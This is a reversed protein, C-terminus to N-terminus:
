AKRTLRLQRWLKYKNWSSLLLFWLQAAHHAVRRRSKYWIFLDATRCGLRTKMLYHARGLCLRSLGEAIAEAIPTYYLNFYTMDNGCLKHDVGILPMFSTGSYKLEVSVGTIFGAKHSVRLVANRDLNGKLEHFFDKSFSFPMNRYKRYNMTLLEHLREADIKDSELVSITTGSKRNTNIKWKLNKKQNRSLHKTYEAFSSWRLDLITSPVHRSRSYGRRCLVAALESDERPVNILALSLGSREAEGEVVEILKNMVARRRQLDAGAEVALHDGYGWLTGCVMTPMFSIGLRSALPKARGLLLDDLDEVTGTKRFTYGVTVGVPKGDDRILVYFPSIDGIFTAEVTQLWGHTALVNAAIFRDWEERPLEAIKSFLEVTYM